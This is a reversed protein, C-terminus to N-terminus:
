RNYWRRCRGKSLARGMAVGCGTKGARVISGGTRRKMQRACAIPPPGSVEHGEPAWFLYHRLSGLARPWQCVLGHLVEAVGQLLPSLDLPTARLYM